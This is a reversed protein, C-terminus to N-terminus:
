LSDRALRFGLYDRCNGPSFFIRTASRVIGADSNWSGGRGVRSSGTLPGTPDTVPGSPYSAYWDQCWECVNGLMDYLGWANPAKKGVPHTKGLSNGQYWAIDALEGYRAGTTGARCAYEWEAETPLRLSEIGLMRNLKNIFGQVDEWSVAVVPLDRGKTCSPTNGMVAQWLAQTVPTVMLDFPRTLTVEHQTECDLRWNESAPSGMVFKGAPIRVFRLMEFVEYSCDVVEGLGNVVISLEEKVERKVQRTKTVMRTKTVAETKERTFWGSPKVVVLEWYEEKVQYPEDVLREVWEVQKEIHFTNRKRELEVRLANESVMKEMAIREEGRKRAEVMMQRDKELGEREYKLLELLGWYGELVGRWREMVDSSQSVEPVSKAWDEAEGLWQSVGPKMVTLQEQRMAELFTNLEAEHRRFDGDASAKVVYAPSQQIAQRLLRLAEGPKNSAMRIKAAQFLAETLDSYLAVAQDTHKLAETLKGQVFAAWGAGLFAVAAEEPNDAGAYRAALLFSHEAQSPDVLDLNCNFFGLRVVGMMQHFRWELKYGPSVHDGEIAKKLEELCEEYLGRRYADRAIEFHNYALRQVEEKALKILTNLADNMGGMQAIMQGFGWQFNANLGSIEGAVQNMQDGLMSFGDSMASGLQDFGKTVASGLQQISSDIQSLGRDVSTNIQNFGRDASSSIQSGMGRVGTLISATQNSIAGIMARTSELQASTLDKTISSRQIYEKWSEGWVYNWGTTM